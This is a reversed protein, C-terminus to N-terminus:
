ISCSNPLCVESCQFYSVKRRRERREQRHCEHDHASCTQSKSAADGLVAMRLAELHKEQEAVDGKLRDLRAIADDTGWRNIAIARM